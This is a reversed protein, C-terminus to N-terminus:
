FEGEFEEASFEDIPEVVEAGASKFDGHDIWNYINPSM